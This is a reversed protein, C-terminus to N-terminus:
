LLFTVPVGPFAAEVEAKSDYEYSSAFHKGDADIFYTGLAEDDERAIDISAPVPKNENARRM